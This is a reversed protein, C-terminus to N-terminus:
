KAPGTIPTHPAPPKSPVAPALAEGHRSADPQTMTRLAGANLGDAGPQRLSFGAPEM